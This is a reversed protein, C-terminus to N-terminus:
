RNWARVKGLQKLLKDLDKPLPATVRLPAGGSRAPLEIEAAHLTLRAVLPRELM